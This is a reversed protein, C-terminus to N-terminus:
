GRVGASGYVVAHARVLDRVAAEATPFWRTAPCNASGETFRDTLADFLDDPLEDETWEGGLHEYQSRKVWRWPRGDAWQFPERGATARLGAATDARGDPVRGTGRRDREGGCPPCGVTAFDPILHPPEAAYADGAKARTTWGTGGCRECRVWGGSLGHQEELWDALVGRRLADAPNAGIEAWLAEETPDTM